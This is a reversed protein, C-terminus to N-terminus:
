TYDTLANLNQSRLHNWNMLRYGYIGWQVHFKLDAHARAILFDVYDLMNGWTTMMAECIAFFYSVINHRSKM